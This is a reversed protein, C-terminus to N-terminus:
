NNTLKLKLLQYHHSPILIVYGQNQICVVLISGMSKRYSIDAWRTGNERDAIFCSTTELKNDNQLNPGYWKFLCSFGM